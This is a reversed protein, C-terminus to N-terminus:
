TTHLPKTIHQLQTSAKMLICTSEASTQLRAFCSLGLQRWESCAAALRVRFVLGAEFSASGAHNWYYRSLSAGPHIKSQSDEQKSNFCPVCSAFSCCQTCGFSLPKNSTPKRLSPPSSNRCAPPAVAPQPACQCDDRIETASQPLGLGCPLCTHTAERYSTCSAQIKKPYSTCSDTTGRACVHVLQIQAASLTEPSEFTPLGM